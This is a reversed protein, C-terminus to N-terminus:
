RKMGRAFILGTYGEQRCEPVDTTTISFEDKRFGNQLFVDEIDSENVNASPFLAKGLKYYSCGRLAALLMTGSPQVLNFINKMYARWVDRSSTVSDACYTSIVLSYREQMGFLPDALSADCRLLARTKRRLEAAREEVKQLSPQDEELEIIRAIFPSWNFSNPHNSFWRGVEDINEQLYDAIHVEASYPAAALAHVVTPGAGFDLTKQEGKLNLTKLNEILFKLTKDEDRRISSFYTRLYEKADWNDWSSYQVAGVTRNLNERDSKQM